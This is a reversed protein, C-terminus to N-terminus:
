IAIHYDKDEELCFSSIKCSESIHKDKVSYPNIIELILLPTINCKVRACRWRPNCGALTKRLCMLGCDKVTDM